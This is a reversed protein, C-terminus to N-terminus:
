TKGTDLVAFGFYFKAAWTENAHTQPHLGINDAQETM